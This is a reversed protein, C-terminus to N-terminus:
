STCIPLIGCYKDKQTWSMESLLTGSEDIDFFTLIEKKKLILTGTHTHTRTHVRM